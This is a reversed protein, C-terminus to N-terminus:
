LPHAGHHATSESSMLPELLPPQDTWFAGQLVSRCGVFPPFRHAPGQCSTNHSPSLRITIESQRHPPKFMACYGLHELTLSGQIAWIQLMDPFESGVQIGIQCLCSPFAMHEKASPNVIKGDSHLGFATLYGTVM